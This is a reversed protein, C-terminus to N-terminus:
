SFSCIYIHTGGGHSGRDRTIRTKKKKKKKKKKKAPAATPPKEPSPAPVPDTAHEGKDNAQKRQRVGESAGEAPIVTEGGDGGSALLKARKGGKKGRKKGVTAVTAGTSHVPEPSAGPKSLFYSMLAGGAIVTVLMVEWSVVAWVRREAFDHMSLFAFVVIVVALLCLGVAKAM